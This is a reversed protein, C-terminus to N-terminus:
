AKDKEETKKTKEHKGGKEQKEWAEDVHNLCAFITGQKGRVIASIRNECGEIFCEPKIEVDLDSM